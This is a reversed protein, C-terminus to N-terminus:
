HTQNQNMRQQDLWHHVPNYRHIRSMLRPQDLHQLLPPNPPGRDTSSTSKRCVDTSIQSSIDPREGTQSRTSVPGPLHTSPVPPWPRPKGCIRYSARSGQVGTCISAYPLCPKGTNSFFAYVFTETCVAVVWGLPRPECMTSQKVTSHGACSNTSWTCHLLTLATPLNCM